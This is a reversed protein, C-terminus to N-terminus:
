DDDSWEGVIKQGKTIPLITNLFESGVSDATLIQNIYGACDRYRYILNGRKFQVVLWSGKTGIGKLNSSTVEEWVDVNLDDVPDIVM